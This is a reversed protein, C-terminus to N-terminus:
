SGVADLMKTSAGALQQFAQRLLLSKEHLQQPNELLTNVQTAIDQATLFDVMEPMIAREMLQNPQALLGVRHKQKLLLRGKLHSGGPLWDLLGLLGHVPLVEPCNLPVITLCPVGLTAAEATKTGPLSLALVSSSEQLLSHERIIPIELGERCLYRDGRLRGRAHDMRPDVPRELLHNLRELSLFPSLLCQFRLNPRTLRLIEAVRSFLPLAHRIEEDRSGPLFTILELDREPLHPVQFNVSDVVLDGVELIKEPAVRRRRLGASSQANRSFYGVFASDWWPRAWLYSWCRWGFRRQFLATYMLDGGLHILPTGPPYRRGERWFLSWLSSKPWVREVGPYSQLVRAEQGTAFTCPYLIIDCSWGRSAVQEALPRIWAVEGPSNATILLKM